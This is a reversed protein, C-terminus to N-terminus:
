RASWIKLSSLMFYEFAAADQMNLEMFGSCKELSEAARALKPAASQGGLAELACEVTKEEVLALMKKRLGRREGAIIAEELEKSIEESTNSINEAVSETLRTLIADFRAILAYCRMVGDCADIKSAAALRKVWSAYDELWEEWEPDAAAPAPADVRMNVCRSRITDLLDNPRASLMFITTEAPPEELTKLFANAAADNMRDAEYVVAVKAGGQSSTQRLDHLLRRMTNPPWDGGSRDADSGIKIFRAKGEPRLEFFDPHAAPNDTKLILAAVSKACEELAGTEAGYLLIAHHLRGARVAASLVDLSRKRLGAM